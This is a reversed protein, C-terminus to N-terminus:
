CTSVPGSVINGTDEQDASTYRNARKRVKLNSSQAMPYLLEIDEFHCWCRVPITGGTAQSYVTLYLTGYDTSRDPDFTHMLMPSSFPIKFETENTISVDHRVSPLQTKIALEKQIVALRNSSLMPGGPVYSILMMGSMFKQANTQFKIVLNARFGFFGKVKELYMPTNSFLTSPVSMAGFNTGRPLAPIWPVLVIPLLVPRSLFDTIENKSSGLNSSTLPNSITYDEYNISNQSADTFEALNQQVNPSIM